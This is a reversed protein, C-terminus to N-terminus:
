KESSYDVNEMVEFVRLPLGFRVDQSLSSLTEQTALRRTTTTITPNFISNFQDFDLSERYIQGIVGKSHHKNRDIKEM